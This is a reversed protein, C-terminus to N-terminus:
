ESKALKSMADKNAELWDSYSQLDPNLEKAVSPDRNKVFDESKVYFYYMNALDNAGPFDFGAATERDVGTYVFEKGTVETAMKMMDECTMIDGAIYVSEGKYKDGAKFIGYACKGIDEAAIVPLLSDNMNNCLVGNSIMGFAAFNELYFSAYLKTTKDAPFYQDALAKSDFHPVYYGDLKNPREEEPMADFFETTGELSSWIIHEVGAKQAAESIAKAQDVEKQMSFHEWYNTVVFLGYVGELAAAYTSSDDM